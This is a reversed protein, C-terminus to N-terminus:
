VFIAVITAVLTLAAIILLAQERRTKCTFIKRM